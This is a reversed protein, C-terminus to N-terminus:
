LGKNFYGLKIDPACLEQQSKEREFNSLRITSNGFFLFFFNNM